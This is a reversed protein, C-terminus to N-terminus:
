SHSAYPRPRHTCVVFAELYPHDRPSAPVFHGAGFRAAQNDANHDGRDAVLGIISDALENGAMETDAEAPNLDHAASM